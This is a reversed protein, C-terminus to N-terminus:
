ATLLCNHKARVSQPKRVELIVCSGASIATAVATVTSYFPNYMSPVIYAVPCPTSNSPANELRSLSYEAHLAKEFNSEAFCSAVVELALAYQVQVEALSHRSESQIAARIASSEKSLAEHLQSLQKQIFRPSRAQGVVAADLVRQALNSM